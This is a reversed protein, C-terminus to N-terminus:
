PWVSPPILEFLGRVTGGFLGVSVVIAIAILGVLVGYEVATAGVEDRHRVQM